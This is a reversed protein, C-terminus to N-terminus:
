RDGKGREPLPPHCNKHNQTTRGIELSDSTKPAYKQRSYNTQPVRSNLTGPKCGKGSGGIGSSTHIAAKPREDQPTERPAHPTNPLWRRDGKRALRRGVTGVLAALTPGPSARSGGSQTLIVGGGPGRLSKRAYRCRLPRRGGRGGNPLKPGRIDANSKFAAMLNQSEKFRTKVCTNPSAARGCRNKQNLRKTQTLHAAESLPNEALFGWM